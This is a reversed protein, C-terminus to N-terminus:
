DSIPNKTSLSEVTANAEGDWRSVVLSDDSDYIRSTGAPKSIVFPQLESNVNNDHKYLRFDLTQVGYKPLLNKVDTEHHSRSSIGSYKRM